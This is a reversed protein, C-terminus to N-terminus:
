AQGIASQSDCHVCIAPMPKLWHPIDEIFQRLWEVEKTAKDLAIFKSEMTSRSICTQKSSKWSVALRRLTFVYGSTSKSYKMNSIWNAIPRACLLIYLPFHLCIRQLCLEMRCSSELPTTKRSKTFDLHLMASRSVLLNVQSNTSVDDLPIPNLGKAPTM